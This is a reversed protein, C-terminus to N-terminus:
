LFCKMTINGTESQDIIKFGHKEYFQQLLFGKEDTLETDLTITQYQKTRALSILFDLVIHGIGKGRRRVALTDLYFSRSNGNCISHGLLLIQPQDEVTIFCFVLDSHKLIKAIEEFSYQLELRFTEEEFVHFWSFYQENWEEPFIIDLKGEFIESLRLKLQQWLPNDKEPQQISKARNM